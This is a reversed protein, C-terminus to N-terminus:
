CLLSPSAFIGGLLLRGAAAGGVGSLAHLESSSADKSSSKMLAM